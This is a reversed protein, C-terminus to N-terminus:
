AQIDLHIKGDDDRRIGNESDETQDQEKEDETDGFSRGQGGVATSGDQVENEEGTDSVSAARQDAVARTSREANIQRNEDTDRESAVQNAQVGAQLFPGALNPPIASM